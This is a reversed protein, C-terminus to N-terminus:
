KNNFTVQPDAGEVNNSIIGQQQMHTIGQQGATLWMGYGKWTRAIKAVDEDAHKSAARQMQIAKQWDCDSQQNLRYGCEISISRIMPLHQGHALPTSHDVAQVFVKTHL